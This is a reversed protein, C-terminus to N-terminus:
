DYLANEHRIQAEQAACRLLGPPGMVVARICRRHLCVITTSTLRGKVANPAWQLWDLWTSYVPTVVARGKRTTIARVLEAAYDCRIREKSEAIMLRSSRLLEATFSIMDSYSRFADEDLQDFWIETKCGTVMSDGYHYCLKNVYLLMLRGTKASRPWLWMNMVTSSSASSDLGLVAPNIYPWAGSWLSDLTSLPQLVTTLLHRKHGTFIYGRLRNLIAIAESHALDLSREGGAVYRREIKSLALKFICSYAYIVRPFVQPPISRFLRIYSEHEACFFCILQFIPRIVAAFTREACCIYYINLLIVQEIRYAFEERDIATELKRRKRVFPKSQEPRGPTLQSRIRRLMAERKDRAYSSTSIHSAPATLAATTYGKTVLLANPSHRVSRKINSYGQFYGFSLVDAGDNCDSMNGRMATCLPDLFAPPQSAPFMRAVMNWDALLCWTQGGDSQSHICIALAYSIIATNDLSFRSSLKTVLKYLKDSERLIQQYTQNNANYPHSDEEQTAPGASSKSDSNNLILSDLSAQINNETVADGDEEAQSVDAKSDLERFAHTKRLLNFIEERVEIELNVGYNYTYFAMISFFDLFFQPIFTDAVKAQTARHLQYHGTSHNVAWRQPGSRTSPMDVEDEYDCGEDDTVKNPGAEYCDDEEVASGDRQLKYPPPATPNTSTSM